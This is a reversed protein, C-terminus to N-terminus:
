LSLQMLLKNLNKAEDVMLMHSAKPFYHFTVKGTVKLASKNEPKLQVVDRGGSIYHIESHTHKADKIFKNEDSRLYNFYQVLMKQAEPIPTRRAEQAARQVHRDDGPLFFDSFAQEMYSYMGSWAVDKMLSDRTILDLGRTAIPEDDPELAPSIMLIKGKFKSRMAVESLVTAMYSHGVLIDIKEKEAIKEVMEAYSQISFDFHEPVRLGNFGPANAAILKLDHAEMAPDQLMEHYVFDTGLFGPLLLIKKKNVAPNNEVLKWGEFVRTNFHPESAVSRIVSPTKLTLKQHIINGYIWAPDLVQAKSQPSTFLITVIFYILNKM